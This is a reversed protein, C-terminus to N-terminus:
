GHRQSWDYAFYSDDHAKREIEIPSHPITSCNAVISAEIGLGKFGNWVLPPISVLQSNSEDLFIEQFCGETMSGKRDDFLVLRISGSVLLYNLTMEKHLHWAKVVGAYVKSFYIEGFKQFEPDDSRLM